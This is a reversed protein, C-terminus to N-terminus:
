LKESSLTFKNVIYKLGEVEKKLKENEEILYKM